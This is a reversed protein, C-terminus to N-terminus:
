NAYQAKCLLSTYNPTAPSYPITTDQTHDGSLTGPNTWVPSSLQGQFVSYPVLVNTNPGSGYVAFYYDNGTTPTLTVPDFTLIYQNFLSTGAPITVSFSTQGGYTVPIKTVVHAAGAKTQLISVNGISAVAGPNGPFCISFSLKVPATGAWYAPKLGAGPLLNMVTANGLTSIYSTNVPMQWLNTGPRTPTAPDQGLAAIALLLILPALFVNKRM